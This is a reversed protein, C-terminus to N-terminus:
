GSPGVRREHDARMALRWFESLEILCGAKAVTFEAATPTPAFGILPRARGEVIKLKRGVDDEFDHEAPQTVFQAEPVQCLHIQQASKLEGM